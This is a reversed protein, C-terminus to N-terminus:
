DTRRDTYTYGEDKKSIALATRPRNGCVRSRRFRALILSRTAGPKDCATELHNRDGPQQPNRPTQTKPAASNQAEKKRKQKKSTVAQELDGQRM